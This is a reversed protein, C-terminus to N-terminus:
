QLRRPEGKLDFPLPGIREIAERALNQRLPQSHLGCARASRRGRRLEDERLSDTKEEGSVERILDDLVPEAQCRCNIAYGPTIEEGNVSPPKAWEFVEGELQAHEERVRNDKATRWTFKTVGLDKQRAANLAGFFKGAQDRAILKARSESVGYREELGSAIEEWRLGETMGRAVRKEIDTFHDSAISRILSVNERTFAEIKPGLWPEAKVIDIGLAAKFQRAMQDRQFDSTRRAISVVIEDALRKNTWIGFLDEAMRDFEDSLDDDADSHLAQAAASANVIAEIRAAHREFVERAAALVRLIAAFYSLRIADPQLQRPVPRRRLRHGTARLLHRRLRIEAIARARRDM